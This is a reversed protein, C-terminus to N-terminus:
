DNYIEDDWEEEDYSEDELDIEYDKYMKMISRRLYKKGTTTSIKM